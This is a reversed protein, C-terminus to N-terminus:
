GLGGDGIVANGSVLGYVSGVAPHIGATEIALLKEGQQAL